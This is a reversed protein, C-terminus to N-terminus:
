DKQKNSYCWKVQHWQKYSDDTLEKHNNEYKIIDKELFVKTSGENIIAVPKPFNDDQKQKQHVGQRTYNWRKTLDKVGLLIMKNSQKISLILKSRHM